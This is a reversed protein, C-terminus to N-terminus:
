DYINLNNRTDFLRFCFKKLVDAKVVGRMTIKGTKNCEDTIDTIIFTDNERIILYHSFANRLHRIFASAVSPDSKSIHFKITNMDEFEAIEDKSPTIHIDGSFEKVVNDWDYLTPLDQLNDLGIDYYFFKLDDGTLVGNTYHKPISFDM